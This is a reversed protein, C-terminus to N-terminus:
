VSDLDSALDDMALEGFAYGRREGLDVYFAGGCSGSGGTDKLAHVTRKAYCADMGISAMRLQRAAARACAFWGRAGALRELDCFVYTSRSLRPAQLLDTYYM